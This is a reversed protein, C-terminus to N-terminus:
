GTQGPPESGSQRRDESHRHLVPTEPRGNDSRRNCLVLIKYRNCHNLLDGRWLRLERGSKMELAVMCVPIPREGPDARFEFDVCWIERFSSVLAALGEDEPM